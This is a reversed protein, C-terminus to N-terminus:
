LEAGVYRGDDSNSSRCQGVPQRGRENRELAEGGFAMSYGLPLLFNSKELRQTFEAQTVAPLVGANLYAKVENIRHGNIRTM